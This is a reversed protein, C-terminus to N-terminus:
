RCGEIVKLLFQGHEERFEQTSMDIAQITLRQGNQMQETKVQQESQPDSSYTLGSPVELVPSRQEPEFSLKVEVQEPWDSKRVCFSYQKWHKDVGLGKSSLFGYAASRFTMRVQDRARKKNRAAENKEKVLDRVNVPPLLQELVFYLREEDKCISYRWLEFSYGVDESEVVKDNLYNAIAMAEASFDEAVLLLVQSESVEASGLFEKLSDEPTKNEAARILGGAKQSSERYRKLIGEYDYYAYEAAYKLVQTVATGDAEGRKLEAILLDGTGKEIGVLDVRQGPTSYDQRFIWLIERGFVQKGSNALWVELDSTEKLKLDVMMKRTLPMLRKGDGNIRYVTTDAM